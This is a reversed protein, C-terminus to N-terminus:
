NIQFSVIHFKQLYFHHCCYHHICTTENTEIRLALNFQQSLALSSDLVLIWMEVCANTQNFHVSTSCLWHNSASLAFLIHLTNACWFSAAKFIFICTISKDLSLSSSFFAKMDNLQRYGIMNWIREKWKKWEYLKILTRASEWWNRHRILWSCEVNCDLWLDFRCLIWYLAGCDSVLTM